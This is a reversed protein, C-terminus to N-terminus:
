DLCSLNKSVYTNIEWTNTFCPNDEFLDFKVNGRSDNGSVTNDKADKWLRIGDRGNATVTNSSLTNNVADAFVAIGDVKSGSVRNNRVINNSSGPEVRIGIQQDAAVLQDDSITNNEVTNGNSGEDVFRPDPDAEFYLGVGGYPGNRHMTNGSITNGDSRWTGVGEGWRSVLSGVNDSIKLNTVVHSGVYRGTTTNLPGRIIEVGGDFETITGNTVTVGTRNDILVGAGTGDPQPVGPLGSVTFGNLNLTINDAGVILGDGTCPGVNHQLTTSATIVTGCMEADVPSGHNAAAPGSSGLISGGVALVLVGAKIPRLMGTAIM